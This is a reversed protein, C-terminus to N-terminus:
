RYVLVPIKSHILVKHTESGLLLADLGRRGHSAMLILDCGNDRATDIIVQYPQDSKAVVTECHALGMDKAAKKLSALLKRCRANARSEHARRAESLSPVGGVPVEFPEIVHVFTAKANMEKALRAGNKVATDAFLSGDTPILVHTFM